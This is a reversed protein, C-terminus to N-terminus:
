INKFDEASEFHFDYYGKGLPVMKWGAKTKWLKDIKSRLDRASYPKDGKSLTLRAQLVKRCDEVGKRYEEQGIKISLAGGKICPSPLPSDDQVKTGALAAAFSLTPTTVPPMTAILAMSTASGSQVLTTTPLVMGSSHTVESV